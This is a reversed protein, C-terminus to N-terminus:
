SFFPTKNLLKGTLFHFLKRILPIASFLTSFSAATIVWKIKEIIIANRYPVTVKTNYTYFYATLKEKWGGLDNLPVPLLKPDIELDFSVAKFWVFFAFLSALAIMLHLAVVLMHKRVYETLYYRDKLDARFSASKSKLYKYAFRVYAVFALVWVLLLSFRGVMSIMRARMALNDIDSTYYLPGLLQARSDLLSPSKSGFLIGGASLQIPGYGYPLYVAYRDVGTWADWLGGSGKCVGIISYEKGNIYISLGVCEIRSFLAVAINEDIVAFAKEETIDSNWLFRGHVMKINSFQGFQGDCGYVTVGALSRTRESVYSNGYRYFVSIEDGFDDKFSHYEQLTLPRRLSVLLTDVDLLVHIAKLVTFVSLTLLLSLIVCSGIHRTKESKM